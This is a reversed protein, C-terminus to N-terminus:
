DYEAYYCDSCIPRNPGYFGHARDHRVPRGCEDCASTKLKM